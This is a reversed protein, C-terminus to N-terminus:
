DIVWYRCSYKYTLNVVDIANKHGLGKMKSTTMHVGDSSFSVIADIVGTEGVSQSVVDNRTLILAPPQNDDDTREWEIPLRDDVYWTLSVIELRPVSPDDISSM